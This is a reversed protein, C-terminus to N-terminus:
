TRCAALVIPIAKAAFLEGVAAHLAAVVTEPAAEPEITLNGLDSFTLEELDKNQTPSYTEIGADSVDRIANPGERTGKRFSATKDYPVGLIAPACAIPADSRTGLFPPTAPLRNM